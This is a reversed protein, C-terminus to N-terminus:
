TGSPRVVLEIREASHRCAMIIEGKRRLRHATELNIPASPLQSWLLRSLRDRPRSAIPTWVGHPLEVAYLDNSM